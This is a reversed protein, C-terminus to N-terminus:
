PRRKSRVPRPAPASRRCRASSALPRGTGRAAVSRREARRGGAARRRRRVTAASPGPVCRRQDSAAIGPSKPRDSRRRGTAMPRRGIACAPPHRAGKGSAPSRDSHAQPRAPCVSGPRECRHPLSQGARRCRPVPVGPRCGPRAATAARSAAVLVRPCRASAGAAAVALVAARRSRRLADTARRRRVSPSRAVQGTRRPCRSRSEPRITSVPLPARHGRCRRRPSSRPSKRASQIPLRDSPASERTSSAATDCARPSCKLVCLVCLVCFCCIGTSMCTM